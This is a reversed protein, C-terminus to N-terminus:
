QTEKIAAEIFAKADDNAWPAMGNFSAILHGNKDILFTVPLGLALGQKRINTFIDMTPDRYYILNDADINQLFQQIKEPSAAQEVNIAIVDFNEGGIERKLKALEPMEIRCPLCWIAWLNVLVLKGHFEALKHDKGQIDKFSLQSMDHLTDAFRMHTFLGKTAKKIAIIKEKQEPSLSNPTFSTKQDTHNIAAYIWISLVIILFTIFFQMKRNKKFNSFFQSIM